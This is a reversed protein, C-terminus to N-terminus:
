TLSAPVMLWKTTPQMGQGEVSVDGPDGNLSIAQVFTCCVMLLKIPISHKDGRESIKLDEFVVSTM